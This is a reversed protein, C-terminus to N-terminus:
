KYEPIKLLKRITRVSDDNRTLSNAEGAANSIFILSQSAKAVDMQAPVNFLFGLLKKFPLQKHAAELDCSLERFIKTVERRTELDDNVTVIRNAYFKLRSDIRAVVKKYERVPLFIYDSLLEKVAFVLSGALVTNFVVNPM